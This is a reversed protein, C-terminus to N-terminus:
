RSPLDCVGKQPLENEGGTDVIVACFRHGYTLAPVYSLRYILMKMNVSLERKM